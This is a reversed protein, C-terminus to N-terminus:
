RADAHDVLGVRQRVRVPQPLAGEFLKRALEGADRGTVQEDVDRRHFEHQGVNAATWQVIHTEGDIGIEFGGVIVVVVWAWTM